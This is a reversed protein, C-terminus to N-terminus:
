FSSRSQDFHTAEIEYLPENDGFGYDERIRFKGAVSVLTQNHYKARGGDDPFRVGIMDTLAPKGGFCCDGLDKVLLFSEIGETRNDPDPYMYGKIFVDEDVLDKVTTPVAIGKQGEGGVGTQIGPDSVDKQFSVRTYGEPLETRYTHVQTAVGGAGGVLGLLLGAVALGRGGYAGDAGRIKWWAALSVLVAFLALPLGVLGLFSILGCLGLILGVVASAPVPTYDFTRLDSATTHPASRVPPTEVSAPQVGHTADTASGAAASSADEAHPVDLTQSM